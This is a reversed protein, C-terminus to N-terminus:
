VHSWRGQRVSSQGQTGGGSAPASSGPGEESCPGLPRMWGLLLRELLKPDNVSLPM